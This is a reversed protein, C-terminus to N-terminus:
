SYKRKETWSICVLSDEKSAVMMVPCHPSRLGPPLVNNMEGRELLLVAFYNGAKTQVITRAAFTLV